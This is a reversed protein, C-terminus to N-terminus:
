PDCQSPIVWLPSLAVSLKLLLCVHTQIEPLRSQCGCPKLPLLCAPAPPGAQLGEGAVLHFSCPGLIPPCIRSTQLLYLLCTKDVVVPQRTQRKMLTHSPSTLSLSPSISPPPASLAVYM